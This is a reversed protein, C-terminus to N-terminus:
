GGRKWDTFDPLIDTYAEIERALIERRVEPVTEILIAVMDDRDSIERTEIPLSDIFAIAYCLAKAIIYNDHGTIDNM